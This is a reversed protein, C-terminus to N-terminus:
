KQSSWLANLEAIEEPTRHEIGLEDCESIIGNIFKAMEASNYLHSGIGVKIHTFTTGNLESEGLIEYYDFTRIVSALISKKVSVVEVVGYNLIMDKHVADLRANLKQAIATQLVWSYSNANLSRKEKYPKIEIEQPKDALHPVLSTIAIIAQAADKDSKLIIKMKEVRFYSKGGGKSRGM